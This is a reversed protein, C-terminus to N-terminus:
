PGVVTRGRRTVTATRATATGSTAPQPPPSLEVVVDEV